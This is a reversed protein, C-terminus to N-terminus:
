NKETPTNHRIYHFLYQQALGAWPKLNEPFGQPYFTEMARIIWVDRPFAELQGFGYLLICDAVKPGVGKIQMLWNRAEELPLSYPKTLFSTDATAKQAADLLYKGRFGARVPALEELTQHSLLQPSPFAFQSPSIEEGFSECLRQIMGKNRAINNNQSFIFSVTTEWPEQRLVRIGPAFQIAQKLVSDKAFKKQLSQYNRDLDFYPIWIQEMEELSTNHFCITTDTQSVTLFKHYAVGSFQNEDVKHWRFSQGCDLTQELDFCRVDSLIVDHGKEKMKVDNM